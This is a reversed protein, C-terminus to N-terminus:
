EVFLSRAVLGPLGNHGNGLLKVAATSKEALQDRLMVRLERQPRETELWLVITIHRPNAALAYVRAWFAWEWDAPIHSLLWPELWRFLLKRHYYQGIADIGLLTDSVKKSIAQALGEPAARIQDFPNATQWVQRRRYNKVEFLYLRGEHLGIFDVGSLGKGSLGQYFRHKDYAQVHWSDDFCFELGSEQYVM